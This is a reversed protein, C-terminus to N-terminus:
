GEPTTASLQPCQMNPRTIPKINVRVPQTIGFINNFFIITSVNIPIIKLKVDFMYMEQTQAELGEGSGGGGRLVEQVPLVTETNGDLFILDNIFISDKPYTSPWKFGYATVDVRLCTDRKYLAFVIIINSNNNARISASTIWTYELIANLSKGATSIRSTNEITRNIGSIIYPTETPYTMNGNQCGSLIVALLVLLYNYRHNIM